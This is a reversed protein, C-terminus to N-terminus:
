GMIEAINEACENAFIVIVEENSIAVEGHATTINKLKIKINSWVNLIPNADLSM